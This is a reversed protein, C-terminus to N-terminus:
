IERCEIADFAAAIDGSDTLTSEGTSWANAMLFREGTDSEFEVTVDTLNNIYFLSIGPGQPITCSLKAERPKGQWGYVRAGVVPQRSIGGPTLTAGEKTPYEKGNLRVYAVGTYQYPSTM